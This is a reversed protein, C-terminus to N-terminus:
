SNKFKYLKFSWSEFTKRELTKLDNSRSVGHIFINENKDILNKTLFVGDQGTIGTILINEM